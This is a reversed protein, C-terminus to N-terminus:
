GFRRTQTNYYPRQRAQRLRHEMMKQRIYPEAHPKAVYYAGVGAGIAPVSKIGLGVGKAVIGAPKDGAILRTAEDGMGSFGKQIVGPVGRAIRLAEGVAGAEKRLRAEKQLLAVIGARRLSAYEPTM